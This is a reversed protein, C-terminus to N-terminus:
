SYRMIYTGNDGFDVFQIRDKYLSADSIIRQKTLGGFWYQYDTDSMMKARVFFQGESGLTVCDLYDLENRKGISDEIRHMLIELKYPIDNYKWGGDEFVIFYSDRGEGFAIGKVARSSNRALNLINTMDKCGSWEATGDRFKIYYRGQSGLAVYKPPSMKQTQRMTLLRVLEETLGSTYAWQGSEYLFLSSTGGCALCIVDDNFFKEVNKAEHVFCTIYKGRNTRAVPPSVMPTSSKQIPNSPAKYVKQTQAISKPLFQIQQSKLLSTDGVVQKKTSRSPSIQKTVQPTAIPHHAGDEIFRHDKGHQDDNKVSPSKNFDKKVPTKRLANEDRVKEMSKLHQETHHHRKAQVDPFLTEVQNKPKKELMGMEDHLWKLQARAQEELTAVDFVSGDPSTNANLKYGLGKQDRPNEFIEQLTQIDINRRLLQTQGQTPHNMLTIVTGTTWYVTIRVNSSSSSDQSSHNNRKKNPNKRTFSIVKSPRNYYIEKYHNNKALRRVNRLNLQDGKLNSPVSYVKNNSDNYLQTSSRSQKNGVTTRPQLSSATSSQSPSPPSFSSCIDNYGHQFPVNHMYKFGSFAHLSITYWSLLVTALLLHKNSKMM